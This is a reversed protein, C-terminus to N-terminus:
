LWWGASLRIPRCAPGIRGRGQGLGPGDGGGGGGGQTLRALWCAFGLVFWKGLDFPRFCIDIARDVARSVPEIYRISMKNSGAYM